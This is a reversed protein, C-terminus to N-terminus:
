VEESESLPEIEMESGMESPRMLMNAPISESEEPVRESKIKKRGTGIALLIEVGRLLKFAVIFQMTNILQNFNNLVLAIHVTNYVAPVFKEIFVLIILTGLLSAWITFDRWAEKTYLEINSNAGQNNNDISKNM